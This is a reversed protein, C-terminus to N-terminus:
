IFAPVPNGTFSAAALIASRNFFVLRGARNTTAYAGGVLKAWPAMLAHTFTSPAGAVVIRRTLKGFPPKTRRPLFLSFSELSPRLFLRFFLSLPCLAPQVVHLDLHLPPFISVSDITRISR